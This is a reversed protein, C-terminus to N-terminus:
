CPLRTHVTAGKDWVSTVVPRAGFTPQRAGLSDRKGSPFTIVPTWEIDMSLFPRVEAKSEGTVDYPQALSCVFSRALLRTLSKCHFLKQPMCTISDRKRVHICEYIRWRTRIKILSTVTQKHTCMTHVHVLSCSSFVRILNISVYLFMSGSSIWM